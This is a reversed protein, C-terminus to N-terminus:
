RLSRRNGMWALGTLGVGLLASSSPEPVAPPSAAASSFSYSSALGGDPLTLARTSGDSFDVTVTTNPVSLLLFGMFYIDNDFFVNRADHEGELFDFDHDIDVTFLLQESVDFDIFSWALTDSRGGIAWWNNDIRDPAVLTAGTTLETPSSGVVYDFTHTTDGITISLDTIQEGASSTNTLAFTPEDWDTAGLDLTWSSLAHAPGGLGLLLTAALLTTLRKSHSM